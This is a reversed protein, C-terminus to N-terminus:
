SVSRDQLSSFLKTSQLRFIFLSKEENLQSRDRFWREANELSMLVVYKKDHALLCATNNAFKLVIDEIKLDNVLALLLLQM